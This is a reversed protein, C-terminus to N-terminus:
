NSGIIKDFVIIVELFLCEFFILIIIEGLCVYVFLIGWIFLSGM